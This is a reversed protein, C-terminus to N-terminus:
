PYSIITRGPKQLTVRGYTKDRQAKMNEWFEDTGGSHRLHGLDGSPAMTPDDKWGNPPEELSGTVMNRYAEKEIRQGKFDHGALVKVPWIAEYGSTKIDQEPRGM